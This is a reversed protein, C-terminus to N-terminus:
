ILGIYTRKLKNVSQWSFRKNVEDDSHKCTNGGEGAVGNVLVLSGAEVNDFNRREVIKQASIFM